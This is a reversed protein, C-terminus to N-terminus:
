DVQELGENLDANRGDGVFAVVHHPLDDDMGDEYEGGNGQCPRVLQHHRVGSRLVRGLVLAIRDSGISFTHANRSLDLVMRSETFRGIVPQNAGSGARDMCRLRTLVCADM